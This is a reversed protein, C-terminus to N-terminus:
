KPKRVLRYQGAFVGDDVTVVLADGDFAYDMRLPVPPEDPDVKSKVLSGRGGAAFNAAYDAARSTVPNESGKIWLQTLKVSAPGTAAILLNVQVPADPETTWKGLLANPDRGRVTPHRAPAPVPEAPRVPAVPAVAPVTAPPAGKMLHYRGAHDTDPVTLYLEGGRIEYTITRPAGVLREPKDDAALTGTDGSTVVTYRAKFDTAPGNWHAAVITWKGLIGLSFAATADEGAAPVWYGGLRDDARARVPLWVAAGVALVCLFFRRIPKM